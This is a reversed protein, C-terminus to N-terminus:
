NKRRTENKVIRAEEPTNPKVDKYEEANEQGRPKGTSGVPVFDFSVVKVSDNEEPIAVLEKRDAFVKPLLMELFKAKLEPSYKDLKVIEKQHDKNFRHVEVKADSRLVTLAFKLGSTVCRGLLRSLKQQSKKTIHAIPNLHSSSSGVQKPMGKRNLEGTPNVKKTPVDRNKRGKPRGPKKPYVRPKSNKSGKPRGGAHKKKEM